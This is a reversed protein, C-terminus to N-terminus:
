PNKLVPRQCFTFSFGLNAPYTIIIFENKYLISSLFYGNRPNWGVLSRIRHYVEEWDHNCRSPQRLPAVLLHFIGGHYLKLFDCTPTDNPLEDGQLLLRQHHPFTTAPSWRARESNVLWSTHVVAISNHVSFTVLTYLLPTDVILFYATVIFLCFVAKVKRFQIVIPFVFWRKPSVQDFCKCWM